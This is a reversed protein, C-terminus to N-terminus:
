LCFSCKCTHMANVYSLMRIWASKRGSIHLHIFFDLDTNLIYNVTLKSLVLSEIQSLRDTEQEVFLSKSVRSPFALNKKVIINYSLFSASFLLLFVFCHEEIVNFVM